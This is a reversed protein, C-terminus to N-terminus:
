PQCQLLLEWRFLLSRFTETNGGDCRLTEKTIEIVEILLCLDESVLQHLEHSQSGRSLDAKQTSCEDLASELSFLSSVNVMSRRKTLLPLTATFRRFRRNLAASSFFM